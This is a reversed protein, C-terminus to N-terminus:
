DDSQQRWIFPIYFKYCQISYLTYLYKLLIIDNLWPVVLADCIDYMLLLKECPIIHNCLMACRFHEPQESNLLPTNLIHLIPLGPSQSVSTGWHPEPCLGPLSDPVFDGSISAKKTIFAWIEINQSLSFRLLVAFIGDNFILTPPFPFPCACHGMFVGRSNLGILLVSHYSWSSFFVTLQLSKCFHLAIQHPILVLLIVM